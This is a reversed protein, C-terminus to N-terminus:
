IIEDKHLEKVKILVKEQRDQEYEPLNKKPNGFITVYRSLPKIHNSKSILVPCGSGIEEVVNTMITGEVILKSTPSLLIQTGDKPFDGVYLRTFYNILM